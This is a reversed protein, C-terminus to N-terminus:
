AAKQRKLKLTVAGADKESSEVVYKSGTTEPLITVTVIAGQDPPTSGTFSTLNAVVEADNVTLIGEPATDDNRNITGATCAITQGNWVLSAPYAAFTIANDAAFIEALTPM